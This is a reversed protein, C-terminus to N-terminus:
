PAKKSAPRLTVDGALIRRREGNPLALVLAGDEALDVATGVVTGSPLTATVEHGITASLELWRRRVPAFGAQLFRGYWKELRDLVAAALNPLSVPKGTALLLSTPQTAAQNPLQEKTLNANIGIGLVVYSVRDAEAALETLVGCVKRGGVLLDNPWKIGPHLGSVQEIAEAVAVAAVLTLPSVEAPALPPRLLVSLWLGGPPSVWDRGLRGRGLTQQWAIVTAGQPAGEVGLAKARDNTSRLNPHCEFPEGLCPGDDDARTVAQKGRSGAPRGTRRQRVTEPLLVEGTAVLRYGLRPHAEIELGAGRLEQIHKWVATRSLGLSESLRQGSIYDEAGQALALLVQLRQGSFPEGATM